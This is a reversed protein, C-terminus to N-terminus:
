FLIRQPKKVWTSESCWYLASHDYIILFLSKPNIESCLCYPRLNESQKQRYCVTIERALAFLMEMNYVCMIRFVGASFKM